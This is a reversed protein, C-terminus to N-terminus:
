KEELAGKLKEINEGYEKLLNNIKQNFEILYGEKPKSKQFIKNLNNLKEYSKLYDPFEKKAREIGKGEKVLNYLLEVEGVNLSLEYIDKAIKEKIKNEGM